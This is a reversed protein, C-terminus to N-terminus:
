SLTRSRKTYEVVSHMLQHSCKPKLKKRERGGAQHTHLGTHPCAERWRCMLQGAVLVLPEWQQLEAKAVVHSTPTSLAMRTDSVHMNAMWPDRAGPCTKTTIPVTLYFVATVVGNQGITLKANVCEATHVVPQVRPPPERDHGVRGDVYRPRHEGALACTTVKATLICLCTVGGPQGVCSRPAGPHPATNHQAAGIHLSCAATRVLRWALALVDTGSTKKQLCRLCPPRCFHLALVSDIAGMLSDNM